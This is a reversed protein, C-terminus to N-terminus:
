IRSVSTHVTTTRTAIKVGCSRPAARGLKHTLIHANWVANEYTIDVTIVHPMCVLGYALLGDAVLYPTVSPRSQMVLVRLMSSPTLANVLNQCFIIQMWQNNIVFLVVM